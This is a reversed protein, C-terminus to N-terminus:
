CPNSLTLRCRGVMSEIIMTVDEASFGAAAQAEILQVSSLKPAAAPEATVLTEVSALWGKYDCRAAVEKAVETNEKFEGTVLDAEIMMGPGLRGKAVVNGANTLVDGLVGV